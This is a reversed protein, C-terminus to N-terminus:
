RVLPLNEKEWKIIGGNLNYIKSFGMKEMIKTARGSRAGSKCYVLYTKIKSLKALQEKFDSSYFDINIAGEIYGSKFEGPTRVDLIVFSPSDKLNNIMKYADQPDIDMNFSKQQGCGCEDSFAPVFALIIIIFLIPIFIKKRQVIM